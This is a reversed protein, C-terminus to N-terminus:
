EDYGGLIKLLKEISDDEDLETVFRQYEIERKYSHVNIYDIAKFITRTSKTLLSILDRQAELMSMASYYVNGKKDHIIPKIRKEKGM